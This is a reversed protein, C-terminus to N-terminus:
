RVIWQGLSNGKLLRDIGKIELYAHFPRNICYRRDNGKACYKRAKISVIRLSEEENIFEFVSEDVEVGLFGNNCLIAITNEPSVSDGAVAHIIDVLESHEVICQHGIFEFYIDELEANEAVLSYLANKSYEKEATLIDEQEIKTHARNVAESLAVSCLYIIDRPRPQIVQTLYERTPIGNIETCFYRKWMEEPSPLNIAYHFRNEIVRLLLVPDDWTLNTSRLKDRERLGKSIELFIDSRIFIVLSLKVPERWKDQGRFDEEVRRAVGLLGLLFENLITLDNRTDWAKDLNDVLICVRNKNRLILGLQARLYKIINDHLLESIKLKRDTTEESLKKLSEVAKDLRISFEELIVVPNREVYEVFKYETDSMSGPPRFMIEYYVSKALESYILYKWLSEVLYGRESSDLIKVLTNFIGEIDYTPPMIICVHNRKDEKLEEAMRLLNATKGTGKRGVFLSQKAELAARYSGTEVFYEELDDSENEAIGDGIYINKLELYSRVSAQYDKYLKGQEKVPQELNHIWSRAITECESATKHIVLIDRYDMPSEYPSHALMLLRLGMGYALGSVLSYRANHLEFGEHDHSLLHAIVGVSQYASQVYWSLPQSLIETPDDTIAQLFGKKIVSTLRLSAESQARSKLYFIKPQRVEQKSPEIIQKFLTDCELNSFPSKNEFELLFEPINAYPSYGISSIPLKNYTDKAKIITHNLTIWVRKNKAIAYGLEFLVNSNLYTLDCCFVDCRDIARCIETVIFNGATRLQKWSIINARNSEEIQRISEEIVEGIHPPELPYAFFGNKL